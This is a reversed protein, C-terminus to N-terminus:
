KKPHQLPVFIFGPYEKKSITGNANKTILWISDKLPIVMRGNPALQDILTDPLEDATASVLIRDFLAHEPLGYAPGATEITAQPLAYKALNAGGFEALEPIIEIGYVRGNKGTIHALLATTWGSGAGVDLIKQGNRPELLELMFAVTTPQSITAAYGISLPYDQYAEPIYEPLVFNARDIAIFAEAIRESGIAGSKRLHEILQTNRNSNVKTM